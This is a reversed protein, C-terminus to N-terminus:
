DNEYTPPELMKKPEHLLEHARNRLINCWKEVAYDASDSLSKHSARGAEALVQAMAEIYQIIAHQTEVVKGAHAIKKGINGSFRAFDEAIVREMEEPDSPFKLNGIKITM